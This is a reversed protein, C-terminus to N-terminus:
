QARSGSSKLTAIIQEIIADYGTPQGRNAPARTASGSRFKPAVLELVLRDSLPLFYCFVSDGYPGPYGPLKTVSRGGISVQLSPQSFEQIDFKAKRGTHPQVTIAFTDGVPVEAPSVNGFLKREVLVIDNKFPHEYDQIEEETWGDRSFAARAEAKLPAGEDHHKTVMFRPPYRFEFGYREARYTPWSASENRSGGASAQAGGPTECRLSGSIVASAFLVVATAALLRKTKM